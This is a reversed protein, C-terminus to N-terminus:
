WRGALSITKEVVSNDHRCVCKINLPIDDRQINTIRFSNGSLIDIKYNKSNAGHASIDFGYPMAVGNSYQFVSYDQYQGQLIRVDDPTILNKVSVVPASVSTIKIEDFIFKNSHMYCRINAVGNSLSQVFGDEDVSVVSDNDSEWRMKSAIIDEGRFVDAKLYTSYGVSQEFDSGYIKVSYKPKYFDAIFLDRNDFGSLESDVLMTFTLVPANDLHTNASLFDNVSHVKYASSNNGFIFRSNVDIKNTYDNAQCVVHITGTSIAVPKRYDGNDYMIRSEIICPEERYAGDHDIWRLLNNCRRLVVSYTSTMAIDSQTALWINNHFKYKFGTPIASEGNKFIIERWDDPMKEGSSPMVIRQLQVEIPAYKNSGVSTEADIVEITSSNYWQSDILAQNDMLYGDKPSTRIPISAKYFELSM